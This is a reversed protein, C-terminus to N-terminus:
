KQCSYVNGYDTQLDFGGTSIAVNDSDYVLRADFAQDDDDDDDDDDNDEYDSEIQNNETLIIL